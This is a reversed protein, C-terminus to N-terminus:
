GVLKKLDQMIFKPNTNADYFMMLQGRPDILIFGKKAAIILKLQDNEMTVAPLTLLLTGHYPKLSAESLVLPTNVPYFILLREVHSMHKGLMLRIQRMTYLKKLNAPSLTRDETVTALTWHHQFPNKTLANGQLDKLPLTNLNIPAKLLVGHQSTHTIFHRGYYYFWNAILIPIFFLLLIIVIAWINKKSM